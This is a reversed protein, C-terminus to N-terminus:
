EPLQYVSNKLLNFDAEQVKQVDIAFSSRKSYKNVKL